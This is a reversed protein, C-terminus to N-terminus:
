LKVPYYRPKISSPLERTPYRYILVDKVPATYGARAISDTNIGLNGSM